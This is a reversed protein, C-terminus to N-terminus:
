KNSNKWDYGLSLSTSLILISLGTAFRYYINETISQTILYSFCIIIGFAIGKTILQKFPVLSAIGINMIKSTQILYYGAQWYTSIVFSLAVGPLGMLLYLPYMLVCALIFDIIAGKNIIDGRHESQLLATFPYARLPLVLQTCVFIWVAATYDSSFLVTLLEIRYFVFFFFLPFMISSLIRSSYHLLQIKNDTTSSLHHNAWHQVAASSVASFLIPLFPIEITGNFYMAFLEKAIIISLIFKDIWRFLVTVLDNIGLQIWLKKIKMWEETAIIETQAKHNKFEKSIFYFCFLIRAVCIILIHFALQAISFEHHINWFHVFCFLISYVFNIGIIARFSKFVILLSDALMIAVFAMLILSANILLGQQNHNQLFGFLLSVAFVFLSYVIINKKSIRQLISVTKTASYTLIFVPFGITGIAAFVFLQSWFNQFM